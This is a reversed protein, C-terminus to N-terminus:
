AACTAAATPTPARPATGTTRGSRGSMRSTMTRASGPPADQMFGNAQRASDLLFFSLADCRIVDTLECLLSLPLGEAPLDGRDDSIIGLLRRADLERITMQATM